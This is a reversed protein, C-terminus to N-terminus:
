YIGNLLDYEKWSSYGEPPPGNRDLKPKNSYPYQTNEPQQTKKIEGIKTLVDNWDKFGLYKKEYQEYPFITLEEEWAKQNIWTSFHKWEPIFQNKKPDHKKNYENVTRYFLQYYLRKYIETLQEVNFLKPHKKKFNDLETQLGKKVGPYEKRIAEFLNTCNQVVESTKTGVPSGGRVAYRARAIKGSAHVAQTNLSKTKDTDALLASEPTENAEAKANAESKTEAGLQSSIDSSKEKKIKKEKKNNNIINNNITHPSMIDSAPPSMLDSTVNNIKDSLEAIDMDSNEMLDDIEPNNEYFLDRQRAYEEYDNFALYWKETTRLMLNENRELLDMDVLKNVLRICHRRSIHVMDALSKKSAYCYGLNEKKSHNQLNYIIYLLHYEHFSIDFEKKVDTKVQVYFGKYKESM